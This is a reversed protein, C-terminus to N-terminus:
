LFCAGKEMVLFRLKLGM